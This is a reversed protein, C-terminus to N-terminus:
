SAGLLTQDNFFLTENIRYIDYFGHRIYYSVIVDFKNSDSLAFGARKLLDETEQLDLRLAIAFALVTPKSPRYDPNSRIKSFLKRDINARHYCESDKMGREDILQLLRESFGADLKQLQAELENPIEACEGSEPILCLNDFTRDEKALECENRDQFWITKQKSPRLPQIGKKHTPAVKNASYAPAQMVLDSMFPIADLANRLETPLEVAARMKICDPIVISVASEQRESRAITSILTRFIEESLDDDAIDCLIRFETGSVCCSHYLDICQDIDGASGHFRFDQMAHEPLREKREPRFLHPM